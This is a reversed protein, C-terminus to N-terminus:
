YKEGKFSASLFPFPQGHSEQRLLTILVYYFDTNKAYYLQLLSARQLLCLFFLNVDWLSFDRGTPTEGPISHVREDLRRRGSCDDIM